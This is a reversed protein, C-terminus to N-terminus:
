LSSTTFELVIGETLAKVLRESEAKRHDTLLHQTLTERIVENHTGKLAHLGLTGSGDFAINSYEHEGNIRAATALANRLNGVHHVEHPAVPELFAYPWKGGRIYVIPLDVGLTGVLSKLIQRTDWGVKDCILTRAAKILVNRTRTSMSRTDITVKTETRAFGRKKMRRIDNVSLMNNTTM